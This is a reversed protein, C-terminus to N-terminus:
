RHQEYRAPEIMRVEGVERALSDERLRIRAVLEDSRDAHGDSSGGVAVRVALLRAAAAGDKPGRAARMSNEHDGDPRQGLYVQPEDVAEDNRCTQVVWLATENADVLRRLPGRSTRIGPPDATMESLRDRGFRPFSHVRLKPTGDLAALRSIELGHEGVGASLQSTHPRLM